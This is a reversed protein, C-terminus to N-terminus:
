HWFNNDHVISGGSLSNQPKFPGIHHWLKFYIASLSHTKDHTKRQPWICERTNTGHRRGYGWIKEVHRTDQIYHVKLPCTELRYTYSLLKPHLFLIIRFDGVSKKSRHYIHSHWICTMNSVCIALLQESCPGLLTIHHQSMRQAGM